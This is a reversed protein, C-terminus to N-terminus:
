ISNDTHRKVVINLVANAYRKLYILLSYPFKTSIYPSSFWFYKSFIQEWVMKEVEFKVYGPRLNFGPRWPSLDAVLM